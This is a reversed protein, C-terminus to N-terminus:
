DVHPLFVKQLLVYQTIVHTTVRVSLIEARKTASDGFVTVAPRDFVIREQLVLLAPLPACTSMKLGTLM